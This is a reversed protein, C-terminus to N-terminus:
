LCKHETDVVVNRTGRRYNLGAMEWLSLCNSSAWWASLSQQLYNLDSSHAAVRAPSSRHSALLQATGCAHDQEAGHCTAMPSKQLLAWALIYPGDLPQRIPNSPHATYPLQFAQHTLQVEYPARQLHGSTARNAATAPDCGESASPLLLSFTNPTLWPQISVLKLGCHEGSRATNCPAVPIHRPVLEDSIAWPETPGLARIFEASCLVGEFQM